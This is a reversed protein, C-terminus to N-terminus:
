FAMGVLASWECKFVSGCLDLATLRAVIRVAGHVFFQKPPWGDHRDAQFAVVARSGEANGLGTNRRLGCRMVNGVRSILVAGGAVNADM